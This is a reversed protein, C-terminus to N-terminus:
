PGDRSEQHFLHFVEAGPEQQIKRIKQIFTYTFYMTYKGEVPCPVTGKPFLLETRRKHGDPCVVKEDPVRDFLCSAVGHSCVQRRPM